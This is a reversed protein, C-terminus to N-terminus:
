IDLNHGRHVSLHRVNEGVREVTALRAEGNPLERGSGSFLTLITVPMTDAADSMRHLMSLFPALRWYAATHVDAIPPKSIYQKGVSVFLFQRKQPSTGASM